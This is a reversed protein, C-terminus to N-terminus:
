LVGFQTRLWKEGPAAVAAITRDLGPGIGPQVSTLLPSSGAMSLYVNLSDVEDHCGFRTLIECDHSHIFPDDDDGM